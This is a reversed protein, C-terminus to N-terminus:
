EAARHEGCFTREISLSWAWNGSIPMGLVPARFGTFGHDFVTPVRNSGPWFVDALLGRGGCTATPRGGHGRAVERWRKPPLPATARSSPVSNGVGRHLQRFAVCGPGYDGTGLQVRLWSGRRVLEHTSRRWPRWFGFGVSTAGWLSGPHPAGGKRLCRRVAASARRSSFFRRRGRGDLDPSGAGGAPPPGLGQGM